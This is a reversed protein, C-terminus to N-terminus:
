CNVGLTGEPLHAPFELLYGTEHRRTVIRFVTFLRESFPPLCVVKFTHAHVLKEVHVVPFHRIKGLAVDDAALDELHGASFHDDVDTVLGLADKWRVLYGAVVTLDGDFRAILEVNEDLAEFVVAAVDHEGALLRFPHQDPVADFGREFGILRDAAADDLADFASECDVDAADLREKRSRQDVRLRDLIEIGKAPVLVLELDDREVLFSVVDDERPAGDDFDLLGRCFASM